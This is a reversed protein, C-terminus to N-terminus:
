DDEEQYKKPKKSQLNMAQFLKWDEINRYSKAMGKKIYSLPTLKGTHKRKRRQIFRAVRDYETEIKKLENVPLHRTSKTREVLTVGSKKLRNSWYSSYYRNLKNITKSSFDTVKGQKMRNLLPVPLGTNKQLYPSPRKLTYQLWDPYTSFISQQSKTRRM